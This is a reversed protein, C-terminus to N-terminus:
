AEVVQFGQVSVYGASRLSQAVAMDGMGPGRSGFARDLDKAAEAVAADEDAHLDDPRAIVFHYEWEDPRAQKLCAISPVLGGPGGYSGPEFRFRPSSGEEQKVKPSQPTSTGLCCKKFKRGSGCPCPDNRGTM